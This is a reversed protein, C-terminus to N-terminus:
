ANGSSEKLATEIHEQAKDYGEIIADWYVAQFDGRPIGYGPPQAYGKPDKYKWGKGGLCWGRGVKILERWRERRCNKCIQHITRSLDDEIDIWTRTFKIDGPILKPFDHGARCAMFKPPYNRLWQERTKDTIMPHVTGM